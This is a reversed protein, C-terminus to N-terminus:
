SCLAIRVRLGEILLLEASPSALHAVFNERSRFHGCRGTIEAREWLPRLAVWLEPLRAFNVAIRRAEDATLM